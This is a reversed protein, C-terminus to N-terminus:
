ISRWCFFFFFFISIIVQSGEINSHIKRVKSYSVKHFTGNIQFPSFSTFDIQFSVKLSLRTAVLLQVSSSLPKCSWWMMRGLLLFWNGQVDELPTQWVLYVFPYLTIRGLQNSLNLESYWMHDQLHHYWKLQPHPSEMNHEWTCYIFKFKTCKEQETRLYFTQISTLIPLIGTLIAFMSPGSWVTSFLGLCIACVWLLLWPLGQDSHEWWPSDGHCSRSWKTPLHTKITAFSLNRNNKMRQVVIYLQHMRKIIVHPNTLGLVTM